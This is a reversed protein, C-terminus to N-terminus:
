LRGLLEKQMEKYIDESILGKDYKEKLSLLKKDINDNIGINSRQMVGDRNDVNTTASNDKIVHNASDGVKGININTPSSTKDKKSSSVAIIGIFLITIAGIGIYLPEIGSDENTSPDNSDWIGAEDTDTKLPNTGATKEQEDSLGDGDSDKPASATDTSSAVNEAVLPNSDKSDWIGDGDTDANNPNTGATREQEDSWGDGDSDKPTSTPQTTPTPTVPTTTAPDPTPPVAPPTYSITVSTEKTNGSTDTARVYITNAGSNFVVSKSWSTTGSALQWSGSGVKVEIKSLGIDDSAIGSVIATDTDFSQGNSPSSILISPPNSDVPVNMEKTIKIYDFYNVSDWTQHFRIKTIEAYSWDKSTVNIFENSFWGKASDDPKIYLDGGSPTIIVKLVVWYGEGPIPNDFNQTWGGFNWGYAGSPLFTIDLIKDDDFYIKQIPLTYGRGASELKMRQEVIIDYNNSLDISLTKDAWDGYGGDSQIYLFDNDKIYVSADSTSWTLTDTFDDSFLVEGMATGSLLLMLIMGIVLRRGIDLLKQEM